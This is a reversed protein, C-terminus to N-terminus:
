AAQVGGGNNSTVVGMELGQSIQQQLQSYDYHTPIEAAAGERPMSPMSTYTQTNYYQPAAAEAAQRGDIGDEPVIDTNIDRSHLKPSYELLLPEFLFSWYCAVAYAGATFLLM